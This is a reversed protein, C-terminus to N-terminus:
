MITSNQSVVNTVDAIYIVTYVFLEAINVIKQQCINVVREGERVCLAHIIFIM